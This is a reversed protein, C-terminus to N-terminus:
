GKILRILLCRKDEPPAQPRKVSPRLMTVQQRPALNELVPQRQPKFLSLLYTVVLCLIFM